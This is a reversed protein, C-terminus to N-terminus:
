SLTGAGGPLPESNRGTRRWEVEERQVLASAHNPVKRRILAPASLRARYMSRLTGMSRMAAFVQAVLGLAGLAGAAAVLRHRGGRVIATTASMSTRVTQDVVLLSLPPVVVALLSELAAARDPNGGVLARRAPGPADRQRMSLRGLEWRQQQSESRDLTSPMEAHVSAGPADAVLIGDAILDLQFEHFEVLRGSWHRQRLLEREFAMGNGYLGCSAGLRTRGPPRLLHRAALAAARLAVAPTSEPALM